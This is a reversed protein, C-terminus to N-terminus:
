EQTKKTLFGGYYLYSLGGICAALIITPIIAKKM